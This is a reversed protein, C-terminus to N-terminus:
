PRARASKKIDQVVSRMVTKGSATLNEKEAKAYASLVTLPYTLDHFYYIVRAGGRKGQGPMSWRIKRVGGTGPVVNGALPHHAIFSIFATWEGLTWNAAAWATFSRTERVVVPATTM